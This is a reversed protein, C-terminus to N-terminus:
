HWTGESVAEIYDINPHSLLAAVQAADVSPFRVVVYPLDGGNAEIVIGRQRLLDQMRAVTATSVLSNGRLDVGRTQGTDKFGITARGNAGRLADALVRAASDSAAATAEVSQSSVATPDAGCAVAVASGLAILAIRMPMM